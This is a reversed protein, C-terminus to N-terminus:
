LDSALGLVIKNRELLRDAQQQMLEALRAHAASADGGSREINAIINRQRAIHNEGVALDIRLQRLRAHLATRDMSTPYCTRDLIAETTKCIAFHSREM